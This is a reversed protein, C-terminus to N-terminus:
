GKAILRNGSALQRKTPIQYYGQQLKDMSGTLRLALRFTTPSSIIGKEYLVEQM